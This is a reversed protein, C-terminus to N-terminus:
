KELRALRDEAKRNVRFYVAILGLLANVLPLFDAPIIDRVGEVGSIVFMALVTWTTRSLLALKLKEMYIM